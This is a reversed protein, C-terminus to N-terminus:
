GHRHAREQGTHRGGCEPVQHLRVRPVPRVERRDRDDSEGAPWVQWIGSNIIIRQTTGQIPHVCRLNKCFLCKGMNSPSVSKTYFFIIFSMKQRIFLKERLIHM